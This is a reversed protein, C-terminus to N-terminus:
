TEHETAKVKVKPSALLVGFIITAVREAFSPHLALFESSLLKLAMSATATAQVKM